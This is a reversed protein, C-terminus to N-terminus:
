QMPLAAIADPDSGDIVLVPLKNFEDIAKALLLRTLSRFVSKEIEEAIKPKLLAEVTLATVVLQNLM